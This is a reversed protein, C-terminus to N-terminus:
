CRNEHRTTRMEKAQKLEQQIDNMWLGLIAPWALLGLAVEYWTLGSTDTCTAFYTIIAGIIYWTM